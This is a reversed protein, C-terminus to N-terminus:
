DPQEVDDPSIDIGTQKGFDRLAFGNPFDAQMFRLTVDADMDALAARLGDIMIEMGQGTLSVGDGCRVSVAHDGAGVTIKIRNFKIDEDSTAARLAQSVKHKSTFDFVQRVIAPRSDDITKEADVADLTFERITSVDGKKAFVVLKTKRRGDVEFSKGDYVEGDKPNIGKINWRLKAEPKSALTVLWNGANNTRDHTINISGKWQCPESLEDSETNRVQFWHEVEKTRFVDGMFVDGDELGDRTAAVRVEPSKGATSVVLQIESEEESDDGRNSTVRICPKPPPPNKDVYDGDEVWREDDLAKTKIEEMSKPPLWIWRSNCAARALVDSWKSRSQRDHFLQAECREIYSDINDQNLEDLKRAGADSLAEEVAREGQIKGKEQYHGLDIRASKLKDMQPYWVANFLSKVTAIFDKETTKQEAEIERQHRADDVHTMVASIAILRRACDEASAMKTGDGTVVCFANKYQETKFFRAAAEPPSKADPSLVLCTRKSQTLNVDKVLPLVALESYAVKKEPTFMEELRRRLERDVEDQPVRNVKDNILKRVNAVDSFYWRDGDRKHLFWCRDKLTEFAEIFLTPERGPSVLFETVKRDPLGKIGDVSESLSSIFLMTAVQSAARDGRDGDIVQAHASGNTHYVDSALAADLAGEIVKVHDRTETDSFDLHQAGLLFVEDDPKAWVGRILNTTFRILGRTQQFKENEKFLSLIDKYSPHFPYSDVIEDAMQEASKELAKGKIGEKYTDLFAKAVRDIESGGSAPLKTFLRKRLIDYIEGTSLDVPTISKAGRNMENKIDALVGSLVKRAEDYSADLSAVVVVCRELKMAATFLNGLSFTEIDLKTGKGVKETSLPALYPPLEDLMILTPKDGILRMWDGETVKKDAIVPKDKFEETTGIQGVVEGWISKQVNRGSVTAITAPEDGMGDIIDAPLMEKLEPFRALLGLAIMNHTKGGGMAQRLVFVAQKSKGSLRKLAGALFDSMGRTVHNRGYFARAKTLDAKTISSLEEVQETRSESIVSQNIECLSTVTPINYGSNM